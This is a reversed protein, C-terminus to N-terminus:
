AGGRLAAGVEDVGSDVLALYREPDDLVAADAHVSVTVTDGLGHVGHTLHMVTGLAPFGGTWRVPGGALSLDAPGRHVSSVVTNGDLTAPVVSLDARAIDRAAFVAPVVADVADQADQLPHTARLRRTRLAEAIAAARARLDPEGIRLDVSLGRYHNGTGGAGPLAMPVQAGLRRAEPSFRELARSVVVLAVVTVTYGPLRLAAADYVRVGARHADAAVPRVPNLATPPFPETPTPIEGAATRAALETRARGAAVGRIVTRRLQNPLRVIGALASNDVPGLRLQGCASPKEVSNDVPGPPNAPTEQFLARVIAASRTGDALAHSLQVVVVVAPGDMAPAGRVGRFLHVRWPCRTADLGTGLLEGLRGLVTSWSLNVEGHGFLQRPDFEATEWRPYELNGVVPHLRLRLDRIRAGRAAIITRLQEASAGTDAFCYLLFLDNPAHRSLWYM